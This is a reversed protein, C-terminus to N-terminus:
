LITCAKSKKVATLLNGTSSSMAKAQDNLAGDGDTTKENLHLLSKVKRINGGFFESIKGGIAQMTQKAGMHVEDIVGEAKGVIEKVITEEMAEDQPEPMEPEPTEMPSERVPTEEAEAVVEESMAAPEESEEAAPSTDEGGEAPDQPEDPIMGPLMEDENQTMEPAENEMNENDSMMAKVEETTQASPTPSPAENDALPSDSDGPTAMELELEDDQLVM